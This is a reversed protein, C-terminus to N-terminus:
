GRFDALAQVTALKLKPAKAADAPPKALPDAEPLVTQPSPAPAAEHRSFKEKNDHAQKERAAEKFERAAMVINWGHFVLVGGVTWLAMKRPDIGLEQCVDPALEVLLKKDDVPLSAKSRLGAITDDNAGAAKAHGCLWSVAFADGRNLIASATRRALVADVEVPALGADPAQATPATALAPANGAPGPAPGAASGGKGSSLWPFKRGIWSLKGNQQPTLKEGSAHRRLLEATELDPTVSAAAATRADLSNAPPADAM